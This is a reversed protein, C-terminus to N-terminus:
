QDLPIVDTPESWLELLTRTGGQNDQMFEVSKIWLKQGDIDKGALPSSVQTWTGERWLDGATTMWGQVTVLAEVKLNMRWMAEFKARDNAQEDASFRESHTVLVRPRKSKGGDVKKKVESVTRGREKDSGNRQGLVIISQMLSMDNVTFRAELINRGEVLQGSSGTAKERAVLEEDEEGIYLKQQRALREILQFPTEGPQVQVPSKLPKDAGEVRMTMNYPKLVENGIQTLTKGEDWHGGHVKDLEISCDIPDQGFSRGQIMVGHRSKDYAVQRVNVYGTIAKKGGLSITVKDGPQLGTSGKKEGATLTFTHPVEAWARRVRVSEWETQNSGGGQVTVTEDQKPM